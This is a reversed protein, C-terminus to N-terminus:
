LFWVRRALQTDLAHDSWGEVGELQNLKEAILHAYYTTVPESISRVSSWSLGSFDLVQTALAMMDDYKSEPHLEISIPQPIPASARLMQTPDKLCVLWKNAGLDIITGRMPVREGKVGTGAPGNRPGFSRTQGPQKPEVVKWPHGRHVTLCAIQFKIGARLERMATRMISVVNTNQLPMRTHVILRVREGARWSQEKQLSALTEKVSRELAAPYDEYRCRGTKARLLYTGDNSFVTTIGM